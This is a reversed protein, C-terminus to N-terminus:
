AKSPRSWEATKEHQAYRRWYTIAASSVRVACGMRKARTDFRRHRLFRHIYSAAEDQSVALAVLCYGPHCMAREYFGADRTFFTPRPLQHLLPIIDDKDDM